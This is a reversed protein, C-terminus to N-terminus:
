PVGPAAPSALRIEEVRMAKKRVFNISKLADDVAIMSDQSLVPVVAIM